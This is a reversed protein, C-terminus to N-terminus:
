TVATSPLPYRQGIFVFQNGHLLAEDNCLLMRCFISGATGRHCWCVGGVSSSNYYVDYLPLAHRSRCFPPWSECFRENQQPSPRLLNTTRDMRNIESEAVNVHSFRVAPRLTTTTEYMFRCMAINRKPKVHENPSVQPQTVMVATNKTTLGAATTKFSTCVM